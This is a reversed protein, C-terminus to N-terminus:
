DTRRAFRGDLLFCYRQELMLLEPESLWASLCGDGTVCKGGTLNGLLVCRDFPRDYFIGYLFGALFADGAGISDRCTFESISPIVHGRGKERILCGETDLKILVHDFYRELVVAAEELSDAGTIKLAEKRNPTYYDALPLYEHYKELSLEDDWGMDFILVTGERHLRRYVELYGDPCMLVAKAGRSAAYVEELARDTIPPREVYTCFTREGPTLMATTMCVPIGKGHYLNLPTVGNARFSERAFASFLDAGLFTLIRAAVGLRGLAIMTAPIGGGPQLTLSQAFCEEGEAPVRPLGGYVLDVNTLGVGAVFSM